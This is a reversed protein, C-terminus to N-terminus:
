QGDRGSPRVTSGVRRSSVGHGLLNSLDRNLDILQSKGQQAPLNLVEACPHSCLSVVVAIAEVLERNRTYKTEVIRVPDVAEAERTTTGAPQNAVATSPRERAVVALDEADQIGVYVREKIGPSGSEDSADIGVYRGASFRQRSIPQSLEYSM